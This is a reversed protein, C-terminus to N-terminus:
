NFGSVVAITPVNREHLGELGVYASDEGTAGKSQGVEGTYYVEYANITYM